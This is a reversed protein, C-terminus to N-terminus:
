QGGILADLDRLTETVAARLREHKTDADSPASSQRRAAVAEIRALAADIRRLAFDSSAGEMFRCIDTFRPSAYGQDM